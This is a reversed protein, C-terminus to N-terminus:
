DDEALAAFPNGSLISEATQSSPLVPPKGQPLPKKPLRWVEPSSRSPPSSNRSASSPPSGPPTFSGLEESDQLITQGSSAAGGSEGVASARGSEAARRYHMIFTGIYAGTLVTAFAPLHFAISLGLGVLLPLAYKAIVVATKAGRGLCEDSFSKELLASTAVGL